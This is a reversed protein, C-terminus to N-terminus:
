YVSVWSVHSGSSHSSRDMWLFRWYRLDPLTLFILIILHHLCHVQYDEESQFDKALDVLSRLIGTPNGQTWQGYVHLLHQKTLDKLPFLYTLLIKDIKERCSYRVFHHFLSINSISGSSPYLNSANFDFVSSIKDIMSLMLYVVGVEVRYADSVLSKNCDIHEQSQIMTMLGALTSSLSKCHLSFDFFATSIPRVIMIDLIITMLLRLIWINITLFESFLSVDKRWQLIVEQRVAQVRDFVFGYKQCIDFNNNMWIDQFLYLITSKLQCINRLPRSNTGIRFYKTVVRNRDLVWRYSPLHSSDITAEFICIEKSERRELLEELTCYPLEFNM